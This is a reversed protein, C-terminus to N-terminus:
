AGWIITRFSAPLSLFVYAAVGDASRVNVKGWLVVCWGELWLWKSGVRLSLSCLLQCNGTNMLNLTIRTHTHFSLEGWPRTTHGSCFSILNVSLYCVSHSKNRSHDNPTIRTTNKKEKRWFIKWREDNKKQKLRRWVKFLHAEIFSSTFRGFFFTLTAM